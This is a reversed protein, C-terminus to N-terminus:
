LLWVQKASPRERFALDWRTINEFTADLHVQGLRGFQPAAALSCDAISPQDGM